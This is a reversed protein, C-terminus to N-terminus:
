EKDQAAGSKVVVLTTIGGAALFTALAGMTYKNVTNWAVARAKLREQRSSLSSSTKDADPATILIFNKPRPGNKTGM